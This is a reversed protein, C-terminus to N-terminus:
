SRNRKRYSGFLTGVISSLCVVMGIAAMPLFLLTIGSLDEEGIIRRWSALAVLIGLLLVCSLVIKIRSIAHPVRLASNAAGWAIFAAFSVSVLLLLILITM